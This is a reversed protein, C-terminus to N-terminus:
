GAQRGHSRPECACALSASAEASRRTVRPRPSSENHASKGHTQRTGSVGVLRVQVARTSGFPGWGLGAGAPAKRVASTGGQSNWLSHPAPASRSATHQERLIDSEAMRRPSEAASEDSTSAGLHPRIVESDEACSASSSSARNESRDIATTTAISMLSTGGFADRM